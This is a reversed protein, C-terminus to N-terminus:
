KVGNESVLLDSSPVQTSQELVNGPSALEHQQSLPRERLIVAAAAVLGAWIECSVGLSGPPKLLYFQPWVAQSLGPDLTWFKQVRNLAKEM